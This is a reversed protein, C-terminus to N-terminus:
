PVEVIQLSCIQVSLDLLRSVQSSIGIVIGYYMTPTLGTELHIRQSREIRCERASSECATRHRRCFYSALVCQENNFPHRPGTDALMSTGDSGFSPPPPPYSAQNWVLNGNCKQVFAGQTSCEVYGNKNGPLPFNGSKQRAQLFWSAPFPPLAPVYLLGVLMRVFILQLYLVKNPPQPCGSPMCIAPGLEGPVSPLGQPQQWCLHQLQLGDAGCCWGQMMVLVRTKQLCCWKITICCLAASRMPLPWPLLLHQQSSGDRAGASCDGLCRRECHAARLSPSLTLRRAGPAPPPSPTSRSARGASCVSFLQLARDLGSPMHGWSSAAM